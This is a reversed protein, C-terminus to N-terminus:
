RAVVSRDSVFKIVYHISYVKGHTLNSSEVKTIISVLTIIKQNSYRFNSIDKLSSKLTSTYVLTTYLILPALKIQFNASWFTFMNPGCTCPTHIENGGGGWMKLIKM